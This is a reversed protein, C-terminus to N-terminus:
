STFGVQLMVQADQGNSTAIEAATTQANCSLGVVRFTVSPSAAFAAAVPAACGLGNARSFRV